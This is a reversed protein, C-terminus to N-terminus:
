IPKRLDLLDHFKQYLSHSPTNYIDEINMLGSYHEVVFGRIIRGHPNKLVINYGDDIPIAIIEFNKIKM